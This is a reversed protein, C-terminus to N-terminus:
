RGLSNQELELVGKDYYEAYREYVFNNDVAVIECSHQMVGSSGNTKFTVVEGPWAGLLASGMASAESACKIDLASRNGLEGEIVLVSNTVVKPAVKSDERSITDVVTVYSGIEIIDSNNDPEPLAVDMLITQYEGVQNDYYLSQEYLSQPAATACDQNGFASSKFRETNSLEQQAVRAKKAIDEGKHMKEKLEKVQEPILRM